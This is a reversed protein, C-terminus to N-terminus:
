KELVEIEWRGDMIGGQVESTVVFEANDPRLYPMFWLRLSTDLSCIYRGGEKEALTLWDGSESDLLWENPVWIIRALPHSEGGFDFGKPMLVLSPDTRYICEGTTVNRLGVEEEVEELTFYEEWEPPFKITFGLVESTYTYSYSSWYHPYARKDRSWSSSPTPVPALEPTPVPTPEATPPATPTPSPTPAPTPTVEAAPSCAALCLCLLLALVFGTSKRM